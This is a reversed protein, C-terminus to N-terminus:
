SLNQIYFVLSTIVRAVSSHLAIRDDYDDVDTFGQNPQSDYSLKLIKHLYMLGFLIAELPRSVLRCWSFNFQFANFSM